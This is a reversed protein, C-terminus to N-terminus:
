SRLARSVRKCSFIDKRSCPSTWPRVSPKAGGRMCDRRRLRMLALAKDPSHHAGWGRAESLQRVCLLSWSINAWFSPKDSSHLVLWPFKYNETNIILVKKRYYVLIVKTVLLMIFVKNKCIWSCAIYIKSRSQDLTSQSEFRISNLNISINM